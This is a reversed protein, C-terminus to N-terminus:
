CIPLLILFIPQFKVITLPCIDNQRCIAWFYIYLSFIAAIIIFIYSPAHCVDNQGPHRNVEYLDGKSDLGLEKGVVIVKDKPMEALKKKDVM